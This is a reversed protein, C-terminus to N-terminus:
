EVSMGNRYAVFKAMEERAFISIGPETIKRRSFVAVIRHETKELNEALSKGLNGYGLIGLRM